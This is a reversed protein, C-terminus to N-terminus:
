FVHDNEKLAKSFNHFAAILQTMDTQRDQRRGVRFEAEVTRIKTFNSVQM